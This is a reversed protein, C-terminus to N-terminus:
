YDRAGAQKLLEVIESYDEEEALMLAMRGDDNKKM